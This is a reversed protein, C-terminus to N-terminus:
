EVGVILPWLPQGGAHHLVEVGPHAHELWTALAEVDGPTVDCGSVITVLEGGVALMRELVDQCVAFVDRGIEVIDGDVLGLVDGITCEGATTLAARVAITVAGYRTAGAARTMTVVDDDFRRAADHVALAALSQVVSRSPVVAVRHGAERLHVAALEAVQQTDGDSPLLVLEPAHTAEAAAIFEAVSPRSRPLAPVCRVGMSDAIDAIGPGHTVMVVQRGARERIDTVAQALLSTVRIRSPRGVGLADEICAGADDAHVHVNWLGDGGVVVLSEGREDLSARLLDIRDDPCELLFMVEFAPGAAEEAVESAVERVRGGSMAARRPPEIPRPADGSLVLLLADYVEVLGRGGADVVGARRLADLMSPTRELAERAGLSAAGVVRTLDVDGPMSHLVAEAADAAARAVTLITGEVPRAVARYAEDAGARFARAVATADVEPTHSLAAGIGRLIQSMIVGSNGRAGLLAGRALLAAAEAAGSPAGGSGEFESCAADMTLYLNTGTDGDPVPFVNLADIEVRSRILAERSAVAWRWISEGTLVPRVAETM